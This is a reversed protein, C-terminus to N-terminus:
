DQFDELNNLEGNEMMHKIKLGIRIFDQSTSDMLGNTAARELLDPQQITGKIIARIMQEQNNLIYYCYAISFYCSKVLLPYEQELRKFFLLADEILANRFLMKATEEIIEGKDIALAEAYAIETRAKDIDKIRIYYEALTLYLQAYESDHKLADDIDKKSLELQNTFLYCTARRQLTVGWELDSLQTKNIILNLYRIAKEYDQISIYCEALVQWIQGKYPHTEEIKHFCEIAKQLNENQVYCLGKIEIAMPNEPEIALAFEISEVAKETNELQLYCRSLNIWHIIDYPNDDLLRNTYYVSKEINGLDFHCSALFQWTERNEPNAKYAKKLWKYAYEKHNTEMYVDAIDLLTEVREEEDEEDEVMKTFIEEAAKIKGQEVWLTARLFLVESDQQDPLLELAKEAQDYKGKAILNHCCYIMVDLDNPHLKFAYAIAQESEAIMNKSAYYEAIQTLENSEFYTSTNERVMNEYKALLEKFKPHEFSSSLDNRMM